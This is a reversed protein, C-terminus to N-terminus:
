SDKWLPVIIRKKAVLFFSFTSSPNLKVDLLVNQEVLLVVIIRGPSVRRAVCLNASVPSETKAGFPLFDQSVFKLIKGTSM